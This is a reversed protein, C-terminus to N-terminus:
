RANGWVVKTGPHDAGLLREFDAALPEAALIALGTSDRLELLLCVSRQRPRPLDGATAPAVCADTVGASRIVAVLAGAGLM